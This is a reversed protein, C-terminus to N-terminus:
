PFIIRFLLYGIGAVLVGLFTIWFVRNILSTKFEENIVKHELMVKHFVHNSRDDTFDLQSETSKLENDKNM